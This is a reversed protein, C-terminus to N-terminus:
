LEPRFAPVEADWVEDIVIWLPYLKWRLKVQCYVQGGGKSHPGVSKDAKPPPM